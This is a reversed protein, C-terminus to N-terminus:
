FRWLHKSLARLIRARTQKSVDDMAVASPNFKLVLPLHWDSFFVRYKNTGDIVTHMRSDIKRFRM